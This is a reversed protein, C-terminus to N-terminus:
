PRDMILVTKETTIVSEQRGASVPLYRNKSVAMLMVDDLAGIPAGEGVVEMVFEGDRIQSRKSPLLPDFWEYGSAKEIYDRMKEEHEALRSPSTALIIGTDVFGDDDLTLEITVSGQKDPGLDPRGRKPKAGQWIPRNLDDWQVDNYDDVVWVTTEAVEVGDLSVVATWLGPTTRERNLGVDFWTSYDTFRGPHFEYPISIVLEGLGDYVDLQQMYWNPALDSYDTVFLLGPHDDFRTAHIYRASEYPEVRTELVYANAEQATATDLFGLLLSLTVIVRSM